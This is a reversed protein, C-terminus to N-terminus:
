SQSQLYPFLFCFGEHSSSPLTPYASSILAAHLSAQSRSRSFLSDHMLSTSSSNARAVQPCLHSYMPFRPNLGLTVSEQLILAVTARLASSGTTNKAIFDSEPSWPDTIVYSLVDSLHFKTPPSSPFSAVHLWLGPQLVMPNAVFGFVSWTYM